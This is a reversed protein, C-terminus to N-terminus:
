ANKTRAFIWTGGQTQIMQDIQRKFQTEDYRRKFIACVLGFFICGLAITVKQVLTEGYINLLILVIIIFGILRPITIPSPYHAQYVTGTYPTPDGNIQFTTRSSTIKSM